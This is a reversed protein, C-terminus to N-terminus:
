AAGMPIQAQAQADSMLSASGMQGQVVGPLGSMQSSSPLQTLGSNPGGQQQAAGMLEGPISSMPMGGATLKGKLQLEMQKAGLYDGRYAMVRQMRIAAYEPTKRYQDVDIKTRETASSRKGKAKMVDDFTGFGREAASMAQEVKALNEEEPFEAIMGYDEGVWRPDFEQPVNAQKDDQLDDREVQEKVFVCPPDKALKGLGLAYAREIMLVRSAWFTAFNLVGGRIHSKASLYLSRSVVGAHGSALASGEGTQEPAPTAEQLMTGYTSEMMSADQGVPGTNASTLKGPAAAVQGTKPMTFVRLAPPGSAPSELWAEKPVDVNPEFLDGRFARDITACNHAMLMTELNLITDLLPWIFPMGYEDPDDDETHLGFGYTWLPETIGYEEYYDITMTEVNTRKQVKGDDDEYNRDGACWTDRGGVFAITVPHKMKSNKEKVMTHYQYLYVQDATGYNAGFGRPILADDGMGDWAYGYDEILEERDFLSRQMLGQLEWRDVGTGGKFMPVCDLAPIVQVSIPVHNAKWAQLANTYSAKAAKTSRKRGHEDKGWIDHITGNEDCFVPCDDLLDASSPVIRLGCEGDEELKGYITGAPFHTDRLANVNTELLDAHQIATDTTGTPTRTFDPVAFISQVLDTGLKQRHPLRAECGDAVKGWHKRFEAPAKVIVDGRRISRARIIRKSRSKAMAKSRKDWLRM